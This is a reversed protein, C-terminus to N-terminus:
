ILIITCCILVMSWCQSRFWTQTYILLTWESCSSRWSSNFVTNDHRLSICIALGGFILTNISFLLQCTLLWLHSGLLSRVFMTSQTSSMSFWMTINRFFISYYLFNIIALCLATNISCWFWFNTLRTLKKFFRTSSAVWARLM